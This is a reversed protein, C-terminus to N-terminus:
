IQQSALKDEYWEAHLEEEADRGLFREIGHNTMLLRTILQWASIRKDRDLSNLRHVELPYHGPATCFLLTDRAVLGSNRKHRRALELLDAVSESIKTDSYM